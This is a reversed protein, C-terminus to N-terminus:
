MSSVNVQHSREILRLCKTYNSRIFSNESMMKSTSNYAVLCNKQTNVTNMSEQAFGVM